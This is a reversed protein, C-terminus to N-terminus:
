GTANAMLQIVKADLAAAVALTEANGYPALLSRMTDYRLNVIGNREFVLIIRVMRPRQQFSPDRLMAAGLDRRLFEMLGASGVVEETLTKSEAFTSSDDM